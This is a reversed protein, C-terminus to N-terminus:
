HLGDAIQLAESQPITGGVGFIIGDQEWVVASGLGTNDGIAYGPVGHVTVSQATSFDVPVPFPLTATPDGLAKIEAALQPTINPLGLIFNEMTNFSVGTTGIKPARMQGIVLMPVGETETGYVAVVANSTTVTVSSGDIGAPLAAITSGNKQAWAQARAASFTFSATAGPAVQYRVSSPVNAPLAGPTLLTIGAEQAATAASSTPSPAVVGRPMDVSGYHQLQSLARLDATSLQVPALQTPQFLSVFSEALSGAPTLTIAGLLAAAAAAGGLGTSLRSRGATLRAWTRASRPARTDGSAARVAALARRTDLLPTAPRALLAAAMTADNRVEEARAACRACGRLHARDEGNLALPEDLARRLSGESLHEV